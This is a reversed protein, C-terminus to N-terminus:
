DAPRDPPAPAPAEIAGADRLAAIRAGDYGLVDALVEATHEGVGPAPTPDALPTDSYRIPLRVNPVWGLQPHPLRSVLRRERAEPSRLAEGVTRVEGCPIKAARMRQQWHAWPERTFIEGLSAFLRDRAAM